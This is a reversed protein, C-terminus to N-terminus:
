PCHRLNLDPGYEEKDAQMQLDTTRKYQEAYYLQTLGAQTLHKLCQRCPSLTTYMTSGEISIGSKAAFIIANMEAHIEHDASWATHEPGHESWVDCCNTHGKPTGNYGTSIIRDDKVIIAGVQVSVCKSSLSVERAINMFQKNSIM